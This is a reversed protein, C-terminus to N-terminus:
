TARSENEGENSAGESKFSENVETSDNNNNNTSTSTSQQRDNDHDGDRVINLTCEIRDITAPKTVADTDKDVESSQKHTSRDTTYADSLDARGFRNRM